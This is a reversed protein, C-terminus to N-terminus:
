ARHRERLREIVAAPEMGRERLVVLVHYLLDAVEDALRDRTIVREVGARSIAGPVAWEVSTERREAEDDDKAALVVETAEEAVKRAAADVGANLLAVTYSGDPRADARADITAWLRELWAFGQERPPIAPLAHPDATDGVAAAGGAPPDAVVVVGVAGDDDADFCSRTGRHCTPGVPDVALLLADADCDIALDRLRLVNGSTEGKRWLRGRSRSHFHVEGTALTAALAEADLWGLMLVRGDRADQVIGAVLGRDGWAVEPLVHAAAAAAGDMVAPTM